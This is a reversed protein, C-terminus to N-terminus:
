QILCVKGPKEIGNADTYYERISILPKGKYKQVTVKKKEGLDKCFGDTM